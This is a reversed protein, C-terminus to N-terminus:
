PSSEKGRIGGISLIGGLGSLYFGALGLSYAHGVHELFYFIYGLGLGLLLSLCSLGLRFFKGEVSEATLVLMKEPAGTVPASKIESAM